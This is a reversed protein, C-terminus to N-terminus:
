MVVAAADEVVDLGRWFLLYALASEVVSFGQTHDDNLNPTITLV